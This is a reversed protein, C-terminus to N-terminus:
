YPLNHRISHIKRCIGHHHMGNCEIVTKRVAPHPPLRELHCLLCGGLVPVVVHLEVLVLEQVLHALSAVADDLKCVIHRLVGVIHTALYHSSTKTQPSGGKM